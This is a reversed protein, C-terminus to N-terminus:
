KRSSRTMDDKMRTQGMRGRSGAKGERWAPKIQNCRQWGLEGKSGGRARGEVRDYHAGERAETGQGEMDCDWEIPLRSRTKLGEKGKGM